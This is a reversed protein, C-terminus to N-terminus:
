LVRGKCKSVWEGSESDGSHEVETLKVPGTHTSSRIAIKNGPVLDSRLLSRFMLERIKSGAQPTGFEPTGLLGSDATLEIVTNGKPAEPRLALIGGGQVSWELGLSRLIKDLEDSANGSAAWGSVFQKSYPALAQALNGEGVGMASVLKKAVTLVPVGAKFSASVRAFTMARGGDRAEVSTVWNTYTRSSEAFMIDGHFVQGFIDDYGALISIVSLKHEFLSRLNESLNYIEVRALNPERRYTLSAAFKIRLSDIDAAQGERDM